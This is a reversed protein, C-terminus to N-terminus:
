SAEPSQRSPRDIEQSYCCRYLKSDAVENPPRCRTQIHTRGSSGVPGWRHDAASVEAGYQNGPSTASRWCCPQCQRNAIGICTDRITPRITRSRVAVRRRGQRSQATRPRVDSGGTKPHSGQSRDGPVTGALCSETAADSADTSGPSVPARVRNIAVWNGDRAVAILSAGQRDAVHRCTLWWFRDSRAVGERDVVTRYRCRPARDGARYRANPRASPLCQQPRDDHRIGSPHQATM